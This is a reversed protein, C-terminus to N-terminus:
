LNNLIMAWITRGDLKNGFSSKRTRCLFHGDDKVAWDDLCIEDVIKRMRFSWKEMIKEFWNTAAARSSELRKSDGRSVVGLV